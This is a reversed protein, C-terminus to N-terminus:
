EATQCTLSKRGAATTEDGEKKVDCDENLDGVLRDQCDLESGLIPVRRGGSVVKCKERETERVAISKLLYSVKM